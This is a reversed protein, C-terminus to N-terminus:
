RGRRTWIVLVCSSYRGPHFQAPVNAASYVEVGEIDETNFSVIDAVYTDADIRFGDLWLHSPACRRIEVPLCRGTAMGSATCHRIRVGSVRRLADGLRHSSIRELDKRTLFQGFGSGVREYFGSLRGLSPPERSVEVRLEEIPVPDLFLQFEVEATRGSPVTIRMRKSTHGLHQVRVEYRGPPVGAILFRGSGDTHAVYKGNDLEVAAAEVGEGSAANRVFGILNTRDQAHLDAAAVLVAVLFCLADRRPPRM